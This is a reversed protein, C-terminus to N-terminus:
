NTLLYFNGSEEPIGTKVLLFGGVQPRPFHAANLSVAAHSNFLM